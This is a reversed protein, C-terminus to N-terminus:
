GVSDHLERAIRGRELEQTAVSSRALKQLARGEREARSQELNVTVFVLVTLGLTGALFVVILWLTRYQDAAVADLARSFDLLVAPIEFPSRSSRPFAGM